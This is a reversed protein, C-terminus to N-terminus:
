KHHAIAIFSCNRINALEDFWQYRLERAAMQISIKQDTALQKTDFHRVPSPINHAACYAHVFREAGDSEDGRLNFNCHAVEVDFIQSQFLCLLLMSDRGGRVGL